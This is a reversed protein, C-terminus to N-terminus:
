VTRNKVNKKKTKTKQNKKHPPTMEWKEYDTLYM